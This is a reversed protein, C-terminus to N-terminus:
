GKRRWPRQLAGKEWDEQADPSAKAGLPRPVKKNLGLRRFLSYMGWYSYQVGLNQEVWLVAQGVTSFSGQLAQEALKDQKGKDLYPPRGQRGGNRHRRVEEIGGQRYWAVWEQLRRYHFGILFAVEKMPKGKRLLWLAHLRPRIEPDREGRYLEFLTTEDEQWPIQLTKGRM